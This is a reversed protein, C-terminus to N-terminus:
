SAVVVHLGKGGPDRTTSGFAPDAVARGVVKSVGHDFIRDADMIKMGGNQMKQAQMVLMQEEFATTQFLTQCPEFRRAHDGVDHSVSWRGCGASKQLPIVDAGGVGFAPLWTM